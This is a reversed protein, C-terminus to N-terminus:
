DVNSTPPIPSSAFRLMRDLHSSEAHMENQTEFWGPYPEGHIDILWVAELIVELVPAAGHDAIRVAPGSMDQRHDGVVYVQRDIGFSAM